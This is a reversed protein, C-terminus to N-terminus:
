PTDQIVLAAEPSSQGDPSAPTDPIQSHAPSLRGDPSATQTDPSAMQEPSATQTDPSMPSEAISLSPSSPTDLEPSAPTESSSEVFDQQDREWSKGRQDPMFAKDSGHTKDFRQNRGGGM